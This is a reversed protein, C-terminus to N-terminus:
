LEDSLGLLNQNAANDNIVVNSSSVAEKLCAESNYFNDKILYALEYSMSALTAIALISNIPTFNNASGWVYKIGEQFISATVRTIPVLIIGLSVEPIFRILFETPLIITVVPLNNLIMYSIKSFISDDENTFDPYYMSQYFKESTTDKTDFVISQNNKLLRILMLELNNGLNEATVQIGTKQSAFKSARSSVYMRTIAGVTIEAGWSYDGNKSVYDIIDINNSDLIELGQAKAQENHEKIKEAVVYFARAPIEALYNAQNTTTSLSASNMGNSYIDSGMLIFKVLTTDIAAWTHLKSYKIGTSGIENGDAQYWFTTFVQFTNRIFGWLAPNDGLNKIAKEVPTFSLAVRGASTIAAGKFLESFNPTFKVFNSALFCLDSYTKQYSYVLYAKILNTHPLAAINIQYKNKLSFFRDVLSM